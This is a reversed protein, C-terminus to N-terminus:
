RDSCVKGLLVGLLISAGRSEPTPAAECVRLYLLGLRMLGALERQSALSAAGSGRARALLDAATAMCAFALARM